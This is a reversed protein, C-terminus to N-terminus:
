GEQTAQYGYSSRVTEGFERKYALRHRLTGILPDPWKYYVLNLRLTRLRLGMSGDEEVIWHPRLLWVLLKKFWM